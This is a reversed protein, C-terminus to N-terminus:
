AVDHTQYACVPVLLEVQGGVYRGSGIVGRGGGIGGSSCWGIISVIIITSITIINVDLDGWWWALKM